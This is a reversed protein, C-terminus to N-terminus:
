SSKHGCHLVQHNGGRQGAPTQSRQGVPEWSQAAAHTSGGCCCCCCSCCTQFQKFPPPWTCSNIMIKGQHYHFAQHQRSRYDYIAHIMKIIGISQTICNWLSGCSNCVCASISDSTHTNRNQVKNGHWCKVQASSGTVAEKCTQPSM